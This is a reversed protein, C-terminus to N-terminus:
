YSYMASAKAGSTSSPRPLSRYTEPLLLCGKIRSNGFPSVQEPYHRFVGTQIFYPQLPLWTFHFMETVQPFSVSHFERLLPSRFPFFRFKVYPITQTRQIYFTTPNLRGRACSLLSTVLIVRLRITRSFTLWLPHCDRLHFSYNKKPQIGSYQPVRSIRCSDAGVM